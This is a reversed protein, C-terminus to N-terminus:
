SQESQRAPVAASATPRCSSPWEFFFLLWFPAAVPVRDGAGDSENNPFPSPLTQFRILLSCCREIAAQHAQLRCRRRSGRGRAAAHGGHGAQVCVCAACRMADCRLSHTASCDLARSVTSDSQVSRTASGAAPQSQRRRGGRATWGRAESHECRMARFGILAMFALMPLLNWFRVVAFVLFFPPPASSLPVSLFLTHSSHATPAACEFGDTVAAADGTGARRTRARAHQRM